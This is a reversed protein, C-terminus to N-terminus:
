DEPADFPNNYYQAGIDLWESILKLEVASLAQYHVDITDPTEVRDFFRPSSNAGNGSMPPSVPVTLQEFTPNGLDDLVPVGNLLVPDGNVHVDQLSAVNTNPDVVLEQEDDGNLLESFSTMYLAQRDSDNSTLELQGAPLQANGMADAKNHCTTCTQDLIVNNMSDTIQRTRNWIPQIHSEYNIVTRCGSSWTDPDICNVGVPTRLVKVQDETLGAETEEASAEVVLDTFRVAIDPDKARQLGSHTWIDTFLLDPSPNPVGDHRTAAEAMTECAEATLAGDANPFAGAVPAGAYASARQADLRGHPVPPQNNAPAPNHCGHCTLTEGAQVQLWNNHRPISTVRRGDADLLTFTFAVDAPVRLKVSGDPEVVGYGLIERMVNSAGFASRDFDFVDDDPMSVPKELRIFRVAREAATTQAPDRLISITSVQNSADRAADVGDLDYVTRIDVIGTKVQLADDDLPRSCAQLGDRCACENINTNGIIKDAIFAPLPRSLVPVAEAVIIDREILLPRMTDDSPDLLWLGYSAEIEHLEPPVESGEVEEARALNEPTCPFALGNADELLCQHYGVLLRDTDDLLPFASIFRGGPSIEDDIRVEAAILKAQGQANADVSGDIRMDIDSHTAASIALLDGGFFESRFPRANVVITGDAAQVPNVFQITTGNPGTDHSNYGYLMSLETGDPNITYLSMRNRGAVNDWRTFVIRGDALVFPDLDHSQNFTLQRINGGDANMIHLNVADGGGAEVQASYPPKGEDLLLEQSRKQRTSSFVIRGDRLFRPAVDEGSRDVHDLDAADGTLRTVRDTPIDYQYIDWTHQEDDDADEIEPGHLAFLIQTGDYSVSVDKVDYRAPKGEEDPGFLRATINHEPSNAALRNRLFLAAGPTFEYPDSVDDGQVNGDDDLPIDRKVYVVGSELALGPADGGDRDGGSCAGLVIGTAIGAVVCLGIKVFSDPISGLCSIGDPKLRRGSM